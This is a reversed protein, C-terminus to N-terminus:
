RLSSFDGCRFWIGRYSKFEDKSKPLDMGTFDIKFERETEKKPTEFEKISKMIENTYFGDKKEVFIGKDNKDQSYLSSFLFITLLLSVLFNNLRM